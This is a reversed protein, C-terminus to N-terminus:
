VPSESFFLISGTRLVSTIVTLEDWPFTGLNTKYVKQPIKTKHKTRLRHNPSGSLPDISFENLIFLSLYDLLDKM